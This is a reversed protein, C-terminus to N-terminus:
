NRSVQTNIEKQRKQCATFIMAFVESFNGFYYPDPIDKDALLRIKDLDKSDAMMQADLLRKHDSVFIYDYYAIDKKTLQRANHTFLIGNDLLEKSARNDIHCGVEACTGASQIEWTPQLSKMIGHAMPSRCINGLCVFLIKPVSQTLHTQKKM